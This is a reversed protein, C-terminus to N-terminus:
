SIQSLLSKWKIRETLWFQTVSALPNIVVTTQMDFPKTKDEM